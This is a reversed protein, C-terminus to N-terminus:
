NDASCFSKIQSVKESWEEMQAPLTEQSVTLTPSENEM